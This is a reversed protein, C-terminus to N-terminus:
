LGLLFPNGRKEEGVTTVPGHGPYVVFFDPLGLLKKLSLYVDRESSGPFDTRGISGAFLTDGTFVEKEGLLMISGASHGPSHLVKLNVGGFKVSDGDRLLIDAAPSVCDFGFYRAVSKGSEGFMYADAEHVCIQVNFRSRVLGNGCTHDPHGHTNVIYKLKLGNESIFSVIEDAERQSGFGPDIVVAEKTETCNAVYCNTALMGVEFLKVKLMRLGMWRRWLSIDTFCFNLGYILFPCAESPLMLELYINATKTRPKRNCWVFFSVHM